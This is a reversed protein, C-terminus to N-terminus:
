HFRPPLNKSIPKFAMATKPHITAVSQFQTRVLKGTPFGPTLGFTKAQTKKLPVVSGGSRVRRLASNTTNKENFSTFSFPKNSANLSGVGIENIQLERTFSSSNRDTTNGYWKKQIKGNILDNMNSQPYTRVYENRTIAFNDTGDSTIDKLPMSKVSNLISNNVHNRIPYFSTM